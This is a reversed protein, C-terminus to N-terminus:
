RRRRTLSRSLVLAVVILFALTMRDDRGSISCGGIADGTEGNASNAVCVLTGQTGLGCVKSACDNDKACAEGISRGSQSPAPGSPQSGSPPTQSSAPPTTGSSPPTQPQQPPQPDAPQQAPQAMDPPAAPQAMDPASAPAPDFKQVYQDVFSTLADVRTDYGGQNCNVDGFSTLGVIVEKGGVTMFAPGGSDGNCTEHTGDTFHLLLATYDSLTTTTQRKIGAGTQAAANDLGYGVFRVNQGVFTTDLPTRNFPIPTVPAPKSLIAVGIDHGGNLNNTDFQADFHTESVAWLQAQTAQDFNPGNYVSFVAGTGVEAPSVCHAATLVVHPSVVEGTCLSGGQAGPVQAFLVVVSPDAGDATGGIIPANASGVNSFATCGGVLALAGLVLLPTLAASGFTLAISSRRRVISSHVHYSSRSM